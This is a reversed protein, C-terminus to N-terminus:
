EKLAYGAGKKVILKEARAKTILGSVQAPSIGIEAALESSRAGPKVGLAALLQKRRQGRPAQARRRRKGSARKRRLKAAAAPRPGDGQGISGLARQLQNAEVEIASLRDTILKRAADITKSMQEEEADPNHRLVTNALASTRLRTSEEEVAM